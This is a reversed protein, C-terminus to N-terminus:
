RAPSAPACLDAAPREKHYTNVALKLAMLASAELDYELALRALQSPDHANTM